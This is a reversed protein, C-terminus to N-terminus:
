RPVFGHPGTIARSAFYKRAAETHLSFAFVEDLPRPLWLETMLTRVRM